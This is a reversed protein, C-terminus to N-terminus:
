DEVWKELASLRIKKLTIWRLGRIPPYIRLIVEDPNWDIWEDIEEKFTEIFIRAFTKVAAKWAASFADQLADKIAQSKSWGKKKEVDKPLTVTLRPQVPKAELTKLPPARFSPEYHGPDPTQLTEDM